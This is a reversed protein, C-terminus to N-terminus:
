CRKAMLGTLAQVRSEESGLKLSSSPAKSSYDRYDHQKLHHWKPREIKSLHGIAGEHEKKIVTPPKM